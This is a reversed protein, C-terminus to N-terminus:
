VKDPARQTKKLLMASRSSFRFIIKETIDNQSSTQTLGGGFSGILIEEDSNVGFETDTVDDIRWLFCVVYM